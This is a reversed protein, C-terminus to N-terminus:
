SFVSVLNKENKVFIEDVGARSFHAIFKNAIQRTYVEDLSYYRNYEYLSKYHIDNNLDFTVIDFLKWKIYRVKSDGDEPPYVTIHVNEKQVKKVENAEIMEGKIFTYKCDVKQPRFSDCPPTVCLLYEKHQFDCLIDGFHIKNMLFNSKRYSDLDIGGALSSELDAVDYRHYKLNKLVEPLCKQLYGKTIIMQVFVPIIDRKYIELEKNFDKEIDKIIKDYVSNFQKKFEDECDGLIEKKRSEIYGKKLIKYIPKFKNLIKCWSLEKSEEITKGIDNYTKGEIKEQLNLLMKSESVCDQLQKICKQATQEINNASLIQVLSKKKYRQFEKGLEQNVHVDSYIKRIIFDSLYNSIETDAVESYFMQLFYIDEFPKCFAGFINGSKDRLREAVDLVAVPMIGNEQIFIDEVEDLIRKINLNMKDIIFVLSKNSFQFCKIQQENKVCKAGCFISEASNCAQRFGKTYVVVVKLMTIEDLMTKIIPLAEKGNGLDWDIITLNAKVIKEILLKDTISKEFKIPTLNIGSFEEQNLKKIIDMLAIASKEEESFKHEELSVAEPEEILKDKAEIIDLPMGEEIGDNSVIQSGSEILEMDFEDDIYTINGFYERLIKRCHDYDM